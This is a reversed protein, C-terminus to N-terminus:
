PLIDIMEISIVDFKVTCTMNFGVTMCKQKPM